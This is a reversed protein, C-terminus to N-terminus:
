HTEPFLPVCTEDFLFLDLLYLGTTESFPPCLTYTLFDLFSSIIMSGTNQKVHKLFIDMLGELFKKSALIAQKNQQEQRLDYDLHMPQLLANLMELAAYTVQDDNLKLSRVIKTGIRERFKPLQTFAQFGAKSALLRRFALFQDEIM